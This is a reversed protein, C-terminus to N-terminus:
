NLFYNFASFNLFSIKVLKTMGIVAHMSTVYRQKQNATTSRREMSCPSKLYVETVFSILLGRFFASRFRVWIVNTM